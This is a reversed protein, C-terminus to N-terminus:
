PCAGHRDAVVAQQFALFHEIFAGGRYNSPVKAGDYFTLGLSTTADPLFDRDNTDVLTIIFARCIGRLDLGSHTFFNRDEITTLAKVLVSPCQNFDAFRRTRVVGANTITTRWMETALSSVQM